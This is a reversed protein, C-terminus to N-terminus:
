YHVHLFMHAHNKKRIFSDFLKQIQYFETLFMDYAIYFKLLWIEQKTLSIAQNIQSILFSLM